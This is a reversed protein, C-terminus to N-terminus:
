YQTTTLRKPYIKGPFVVSALTMTIVAVLSLLTLAKALKYKFLLGNLEQTTGAARQYAVMSQSSFTTYFFSLLFLGSVGKKKPEIYIEGSAIPHLKSFQSSGM